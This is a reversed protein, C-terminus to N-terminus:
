SKPPLDKDAKQEITHEAQKEAEAAFQRVSSEMSQTETQVARKADDLQKKLDALKAERDLEATLNRVYGRAQGSWRGITRALGPLKEPGLVVLAIIFCILLETFGIDFM